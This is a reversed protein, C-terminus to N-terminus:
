RWILIVMHLYYGFLFWWIKGGLSDRQPLFISKLTLQMGLLLYGVSFSGLVNKPPEKDRSTMHPSRKKKFITKNTKIKIKNTYKGTEGQVVPGKCIHMYVIAQKTDTHSESNALLQSQKKHRRM